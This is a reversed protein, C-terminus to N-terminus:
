RLCVPTFGNLHASQSRLKELDSWRARCRLLCMSTHPLSGDLRAYSSSRKAAGLEAPSLGRWLTLTLPVVMGHHRFGSCSCSPVRRREAQLYGGMMLVHSGDVIVSAQSNWRGLDQLSLSTTKWAIDEAMSFINTAQETKWAPLCKATLRKFTM